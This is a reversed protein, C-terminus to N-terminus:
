TKLGIAMWRVRLGIVPNQVWFSFGSNTMSSINWTKSALSASSNSFTATVQYVTSFPTPYTVNTPNSSTSVAAGWQLILGGPLFTYGSSALLPDLNTMQVETGNSEQRFFLTSRSSQEKVYLGAENADTTPASGQEPMQLFKHKGESTNTTPDVIAVHNRDLFVKIAGFNNLLDAQSDSPRDSPQPINGNYVTM